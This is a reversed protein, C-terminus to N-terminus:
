VHHAPIGSDSSEAALGASRHDYVAALDYDGTASIGCSDSTAETAISPVDGYVSSGDDCGASEIGSATSCCDATSASAVASCDLDVAAVDRCGSGIVCCSDASAVIAVTGVEPDCASVHRGAARGALSDSAAIRVVSGQGDTIEIYGRFFAM